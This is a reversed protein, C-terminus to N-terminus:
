KIDKIALPTGYDQGNPAVARAVVGAFADRFEPYKAVMAKILALNEQFTKVSDSIDPAQYKVVLDLNDGVSIPFIMTLRYTGGNAALDTTQGNAPLDHPLVQQTEDYLRDLQPTSIAGLPRLLEFAVNYYLWANRLEGKAKYARAQAIYWNADHGALESPQVYLGAVRWRTGDQHLVWSVTAPTKASVDTIVVGYKGRPLGNFVFAVRDPSNYVGCYFDARQGSPQTNDLLYLSRITARGAFISQNAAVLDGLDFETNQRLEASGQQASQFNQGAAAELAAKTSAETDEATYCTQASMQGSACVIVAALIAAFGWPTHTKRM